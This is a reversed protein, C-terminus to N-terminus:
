VFYATATLTRNIVYDSVQDQRQWDPLAVSWDRNGKGAIGRDILPHKLSVNPIEPTGCNAKGM